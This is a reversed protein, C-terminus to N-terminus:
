WTANRGLVVRGAKSHAAHQCRWQELIGKTDGKRLVTKGGELRAGDLGNSLSHSHELVAEADGSDVSGEVLRGATGDGGDRASKTHSVDVLREAKGLYGSIAPPISRHYETCLIIGSSCRTRVRYRKSTSSNGHVLQLTAGGQTIDM